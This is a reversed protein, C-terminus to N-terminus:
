PWLSTPVLALGPFPPLDVPAPGWARLALAYRDGGLRYAEIIGADPDLLWFFPVGHRAYLGPKTARDIATTSPSLIEVALTPPGEIGRRSVVDLRDSALYVLDPQVISTDSLIVDLPAFLIEGLGFARVHTDLIRFLNAACRQHQPSPAPTVSLEGDHIEYRRGDNPLAAYDHYTLVAHRPSM